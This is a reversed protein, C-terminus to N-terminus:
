QPIPINELGPWAEYVLERTWQSTGLIDNADAAQRTQDCSQFEVCILVANGIVYGIDNNLREISLKWNSDTIFSLPIGSYYCRGKQEWLLDLIHDLTINFEHERGKTNRRKTTGRCDAILRELFSRLRDDYRQKTIKSSCKKCYVRPTGRAKNYFIFNDLPKWIECKNCKWQGKENPSRRPNKAVFDTRIPAHRAEDIMFRLKELDIIEERLLPVQLYKERTWKKPTNFRQAIISVNDQTYFLEDVMREISASWDTHPRTELLHGSIACRHEQEEWLAFIFEETLDTEPWGFNISRDKASKVFGKLYTDEQQRWKRNDINNCVKCHSAWGSKLHPTSRDRIGFNEIPKVNHCKTCEKETIRKEKLKKPKQLIESSTSRKM